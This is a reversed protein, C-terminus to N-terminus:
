EDLGVVLVLSPPFCFVQPSGEAGIRFDGGHLLDDDLLAEGRLFLSLGLRHSPRKKRWRVAWAFLFVTRATEGTGTLGKTALGVRV